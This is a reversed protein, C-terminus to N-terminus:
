VSYLFNWINRSFMRFFHIKEGINPQEDYLGGFENAYYSIQWMAINTCKFQLYFESETSNSDTDWIGGCILVVQLICEIGSRSDNGKLTM